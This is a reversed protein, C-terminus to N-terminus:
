RVLTPRSLALRVLDPLGTLRGMVRYEDIAPALTSRIWARTPRRAISIAVGSILVVGAMLVIDPMVSGSPELTLALVVSAFIAFGREVRRGVGALVVVGWLAYWPLVIPGCAVVLALALGCARATGLQPARWLFVAVGIAAVLMGVVRMMTLAGADHGVIDSLFKAIFTTPTLYSRNKGPVGLAGIWGFGIGTVLSIATFTAATVGALRAFVAVRREPPAQRVAELAIFAIGIAAPNKVTAALACLAVASAYRQTTAVALGAVLLGIMLSDNHAGGVFHFLLLPNCVGLWIARTPDKGVSRALTPLSVAILVVGLIEYGRLVLITGILSHGTAVVAYQALRLFLPGYPCPTPLWLKSVPALFTASHLASPGHTYPNIHQTVMM